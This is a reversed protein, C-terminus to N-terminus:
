TRERLPLCLARVAIAFREGFESRSAADHKLGRATANLTEALQRASIGAARYAAPLGSSRLTRAVREVFREEHEQILPGVLELSAQHLDSVDGGLLGVYRGVWADFAGSLQAELPLESELALCAAELGTQLFHRVAAGFLEEKTAFHLYLAQRSLQGARAVEEMSTKRFGYRLFTALAADLLRRRRATDQTPNGEQRETSAERGPTSTASRRSMERMLKVFQAWITLM